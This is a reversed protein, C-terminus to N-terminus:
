YILILLLGDYPEVYWPIHKILRAYVTSGGGCMPAIAAFQQPYRAALMYTGLGGMSIGTLYVRKQNLSLQTVTLDILQHLMECLSANKWETGSPCLPSLVIGRDFLSNVSSNNNIGESLFHPLAFKLLEDVTSGRASAGHLFVILSYQDYNRSSYCKPAWLLVKMQSISKSNSRTSASSAISDENTNDSDSPPLYYTFQTHKGPTLSSPLVSHLSDPATKHPSSLLESSQAQAPSRPSRRQSPSITTSGPSRAPATKTPTTTAVEDGSDRERVAAVNSTNNTASKAVSNNEDKTVAPVAATQKRTSEVFVKWSNLPKCMSANYQASTTTVGAPLRRHVYVTAPGWSMSYKTKELLEFCDSSLQNTFTVFISGPKLKEAIVSIEGMLEKGFCTSNAFVFDGHSWDLETISGQTLVIDTASRYHLLRKFLDHYRTAVQQSATFLSQLLEIGECRVFDENIRAALVARGTGSGLDIFVKDRTDFGCCCKRLITVFSKYDIEGYTLSSHTKVGLEKREENSLKKGTELTCVSFLQDFLNMGERVSLELVENLFQEETITHKDFFRRLVFLLREDGRFLMTKLLSVRNQSLIFHSWCNNEDTSDQQIATAASLPSTLSHVYQLFQKLLMVRSDTEVAEVSKEVKNDKVDRQLEVNEM